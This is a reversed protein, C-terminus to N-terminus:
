VHARGIEPPRPKADFVRNATFPMWYPALANTSIDNAAM